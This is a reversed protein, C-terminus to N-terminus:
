VGNHPPSSLRTLREEFSFDPRPRDQNLYWQYTEALGADFPTPSFGLDRRARDIRMTISPLDLYEGFYFPKEFVKGGASEIAARPVFVFRPERGAARAFARVAELRTVPAADALNYARPTSIDPEAVRLMAWVLDRVYVFQMLRLGDDPIVIASHAATM